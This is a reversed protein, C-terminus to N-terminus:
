TTSKSTGNGTEESPLFIVNFGDARQSAKCKMVECGQSFDTFMCGDCTDDDPTNPPLPVVRVNHLETDRVLDIVISM